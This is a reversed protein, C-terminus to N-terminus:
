INFLRCLWYEGLSVIAYMSYIAAHLVGSAMGHMHIYGLKGSAMGHMHIYGLKGSHYM